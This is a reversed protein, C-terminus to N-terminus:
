EGTLFEALTLDGVILVTGQSFKDMLTLLRDASSRLQYIYSVNM